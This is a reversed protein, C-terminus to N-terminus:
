SATAAASRGREAFSFGVGVAIAAVGIGVSAALGPKLTMLAVIAIDVAVLTNHAGALKQDHVAARIEPTVPGDPTTEALAVVRKLVPEAVAVALVGSVAFLALSVLIWGDGFSWDLVVMVVGAVLVVGASPGALKSLAQAVGAVARLSAVSSAARLRRMLLPGVLSGGVVVVAGLIHALLMLEYLTMNGCKRGVSRRNSPRDAVRSLIWRAPPPTM